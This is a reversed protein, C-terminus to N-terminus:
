ENDNNNKRMEPPYVQFANQNSNLVHNNTKARNIKKAYLTCPM